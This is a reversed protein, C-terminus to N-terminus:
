NPPQSSIEEKFEILKIDTRQKLIEDGELSQAIAGLTTKKTPHMIHEGIEALPLALFPRSQIEPDPIELGQEQVVQDGFIAIDLDITRPGNKNLPDRVRNLQAEIKRLVDYKLARPSLDTLIRVAANCFPAQNVDGVPESEWVSSAELLTITESKELLEVAKPLYVEPEINSGLTLFVQSHM